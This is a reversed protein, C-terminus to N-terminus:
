VEVVVVSRVQSSLAGLIEPVIVSRHELAAYASLVQAMHDPRSVANLHQARIRKVIYGGVADLM